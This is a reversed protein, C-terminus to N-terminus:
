RYHYAGAGKKRCAAVHYKLDLFYSSYDVPHPRQRSDLMQEILQETLMSPSSLVMVGPMDPFWEEYVGSIKGTTNDVAICPTGAIMAFVMSHLRDTVVLDASAFERIKDEIVDDRRYMPIVKHKWITSTQICRMRRSRCVAEVTKKMSGTGPQKEVDRRLALIMRGTRGEKRVAKKQMRLLALDPLLHVREPDLGLVDLCYRWSRRERLCIHAHRAATFIKAFQEPSSFRGDPYFYVTQPLIIIRNDPYSSLIEEIVLQDEYLSGMWGGGILFITDRPRIQVRSPYLEYVFEPIEVVDSFGMSRILALGQQAILQDGLNSHIPSGIFVARFPSGETQRLNHIYGEFFPAALRLKITKKLRDSLSLYM